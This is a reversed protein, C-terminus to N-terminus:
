RGTMDISHQSMFTTLNTSFTVHSLQPNDDEYDKVHGDFSDHHPPQLHTSEQRVTDTNLGNHHQVPEVDAKTEYRLENLDAVQAHVGNKM